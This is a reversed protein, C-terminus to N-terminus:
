VCGHSTTSRHKAERYLDLGSLICSVYLRIISLMEGTGSSVAHNVFLNRCFISLPYYNLDAIVLVM